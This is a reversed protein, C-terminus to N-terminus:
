RKQMSGFYGSVRKGSSTVGSGNPSIVMNIESLAIKKTKVNMLCPMLKKVGSKEYFVSAIMTQYVNGSQSTSETTGSYPAVTAKILGKSRSVNWANVITGGEYKGKKIISYTAGSKKAPPPPAQQYGRNSYGRNSYNQNSYVRNYNNRYNM